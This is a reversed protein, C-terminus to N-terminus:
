KTVTMFSLIGKLHINSGVNTLLNHDHVAYFGPKDPVIAVMIVEM